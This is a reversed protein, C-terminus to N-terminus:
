YFKFIADEMYREIHSAPAFIHYDAFAPSKRYEGVLVDKEDEMMLGHAQKMIETNLSLDLTKQLYNWAKICNIMQRCFNSANNSLTNGQFLNWIDGWFFNADVEGELVYSGYLFMVNCEKTHEELYPHNEYQNNLKLVRQSNKVIHDFEDDDEMWVQRRLM